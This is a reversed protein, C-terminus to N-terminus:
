KKLEKDYIDSINVYKKFMDDWLNSYKTLFKMFINQNLYQHYDKIYNEIIINIDNCFLKQKM